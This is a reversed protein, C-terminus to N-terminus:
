QLDKGLKPIDSEEVRTLCAATLLAIIHNPNPQKEFSKLEGRFYEFVERWSNSEERTNKLIAFIGGIEEPLDALAIQRKVIEKIRNILRQDVTIAVASSGGFNPKLIDGSNTFYRWGHSEVLDCDDVFVISFQWRHDRRPDQELRTVIVDM